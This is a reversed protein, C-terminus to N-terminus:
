IKLSEDPFKDQLIKEIELITTADTFGKKTKPIKFAVLEFNEEDLQKAKRLWMSGFESDTLTSTKKIWGEFFISLIYDM